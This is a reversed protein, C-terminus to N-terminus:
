RYILLCREITHLSRVIVGTELQNSMPHFTNATDPFPQIQGTLINAHAMWWRKDRTVVTSQLSTDVGLYLIYHCLIQWGSQQKTNSSQEQESAAINYDSCKVGRVKLWVAQLDYWVLSQCSCQRLSKLSHGFTPPPTVFLCEELM